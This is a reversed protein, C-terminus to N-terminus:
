GSSRRGRLFIAQGAKRTKERRRDAIPRVAFSCQGVAAAATRDPRRPADRTPPLLAVRRAQHLVHPPPDTPEDLVDDPLNALEAVAQAHVNDFLRRIEDPAPYAGADAQPTSGKGFLGPLEESVLRADEARPGRIRKLALSYQAVAVHGVQWAIHTVGESPMRFYDEPALADLLSETYKRASCIQDIVVGIRSM